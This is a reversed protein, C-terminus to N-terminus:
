ATTCYCRATPVKLAFPRSEQRLHYSYEALSIRTIGSSLIRPRRGIECRHNARCWSYSTRDILIYRLPGELARFRGSGSGCWCAITM